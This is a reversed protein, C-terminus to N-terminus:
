AVSEEPIPAARLTPATEGGLELFRETERVLSDAKSIAVDGRESRGRVTAILADLRAAHRGREHAAAVLRAAAADVAEAASIGDEEIENVLESFHAGVFAQVGGRHAAVAQSLADRREAWPAASAAKAKVLEVEAKTRAAASVTEGLASARELEVLAGSTRQLTEGAARQERDLLDRRDELEDQADILRALEVAAASRPASFDLAFSSLAM